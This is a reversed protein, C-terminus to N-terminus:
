HGYWRVTTLNSRIRYNHGTSIRPNSSTGNTSYWIGLCLIEESIHVYKMAAAAFVDLLHHHCGGVLAGCSTAAVGLGGGVRPLPDLHSARLQLDTSDTHNLTKGM